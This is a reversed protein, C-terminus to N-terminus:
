RGIARALGAEALRITALAQTRDLESQLVIVQADLVDTSTAVGAAFREGAVRRAEVAARVGDEAASVAARGAELERLRQRVEVALLGDFEALRARLARGSASVEAIAARARGGDFLPWNVAVGADWSGRWTAERPFHRQNPNAYDYGGVVGITPKTAAGAAREREAIAALRDVIAARERRNELAATLLTDFAQEDLSPSELRDVPDIQVGPAVGVLRGLEADAVDQTSRAQIALMRQRSEQAEVNLVDNPPILGAALQSRAVDLHARMRELSEDVVRASEMATKLTWYARTIQLRLDARAADFDFAAAAAEDRAARENAELRGGTYIPWQVDLRTRYNDPVDPYVVLLQGPQLVAFEDVHNTRLYGAQATLQPRAAASQQDAVAEAADRRAGAEELRHSAELGRQIAADLTLPLRASDPRPQAGAALPWALVVLTSAMIQKM